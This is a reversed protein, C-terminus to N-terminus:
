VRHYRENSSRRPKRRRPDRPFRETELAAMDVPAPPRHDGAPLHPGSTAPRAFVGPISTATSGPETVIYGGPDLEIQGTFLKTNPDHAIAVFV